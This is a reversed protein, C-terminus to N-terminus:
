TFAQFLTCQDEPEPYFRPYHELGIPRCSLFVSPRLHQTLFVTCDISSPPCFVSAASHWRCLVIHSVLYSFLPMTIILVSYLLLSPLNKYCSAKNNWPSYLLLLVQTVAKKRPCGPYAMGGGWRASYVMRSKVSAFSSPTATADALGYAGWELCVVMGAGWWEMEKCVPHEEQRGVLVILATFAFGCNCLNRFILVGLSRFM